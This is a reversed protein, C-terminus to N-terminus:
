TDTFQRFRRRPAQGQEQRSACKVCLAAYPIAELRAKPISRGCETCQGYTGDAIRELAAQVQDLAERESGLLSLTLEQDFNDTGVDAMDSPMLAVGDPEKNLAHDAMQTVNGRLRTRLAFLRERYGSMEFKHM